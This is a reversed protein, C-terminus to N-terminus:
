NAPKYRNELYWRDGIRRFYVCRDKVDKLRVCDSKSEKDSTWEGEKLFRQLLQLTGADMKRRTDVVQSEFRGDYQRQVREDVFAPDALQAVLYEFRQAEVAKIVSTLAEKATAQPYAKADLPIGYRTDPTPDTRAALALGPGLLLALALLSRM